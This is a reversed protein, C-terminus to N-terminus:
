NALGRPKEDRNERRPRAHICLRSSQKRPHEAVDFFAVVRPGVVGAVIEGVDQHTCSFRTTACCPPSSFLLSIVATGSSSFISSKFPATTVASAILVCFVM